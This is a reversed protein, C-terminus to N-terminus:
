SDMTVEMIHGLGNANACAQWTLYRDLIVHETLIVEDFAHRMRNHQSLNESSGWGTGNEECVVYFTAYFFVTM